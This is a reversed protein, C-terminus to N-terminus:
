RSTPRALNFKDRTFCYESGGMRGVLDLLDSSIKGDVVVDDSVHVMLIRGITLHPSLPGDGLNVIQILECEMQIPSEVIRPPKVRESAVTSLGVMEIENEDADYEFATQNMKEALSAPVVNVVFERTNEINVVTDKKKGDRTNVPSFCVAPPNASIGNFFSYPALNPVGDISITSVWAIPRPTIMSVLHGYMEKLSVQEPDIKM